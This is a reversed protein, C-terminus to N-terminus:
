ASMVANVYFGFLDLEVDYKILEHEKHKLVDLEHDVVLGKFFIVYTKFVLFIIRYM